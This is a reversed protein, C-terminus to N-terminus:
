TVLTRGAVPAMANVLEPREVSMVFFVYSMKDGPAGDADLLRVVVKGETIAPVATSIVMEGDLTLNASPELEWTVDTIRGVDIGVQAADFVLQQRGETKMVLLM